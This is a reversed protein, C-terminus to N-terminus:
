MPSNTEDYSPDYFDLFTSLTEEWAKNQAETFYAMMEAERNELFADLQGSTELDAYTLPAKEMLADRIMDIRRQKKNEDAMEIM